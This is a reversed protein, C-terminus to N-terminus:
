GGSSVICRLNVTVLMWWRGHVSLGFYRWVANLWIALRQCALSKLEGFRSLFPKEYGTTSSKM